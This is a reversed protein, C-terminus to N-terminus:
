KNGWVIFYAIWGAVAFCWFQAWRARSLDSDFAKQFEKEQKELRIRLAEVEAWRKGYKNLFDARLKVEEKRVNEEHEWQMLVRKLFLEKRVENERLERRRDLNRQQAVDSAEKQTDAISKTLEKGVERSANLSSSIGKAGELFGFQDAV